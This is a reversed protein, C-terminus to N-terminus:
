IISAARAQPGSARDGPVRDPLTEGELWLPEVVHETPIEVFGRDGRGVLEALLRAMRRWKEIRRMDGGSIVRGHFRFTSETLVAAIAPGRRRKPLYPELARAQSAHFCVIADPRLDSVQRFTERDVTLGKRVPAEIYSLTAGRPLRRERYSLVAGLRADNDWTSGSEFLLVVVRRYGRDFVRSLVFFLYAYPDHRTLHVPLADDGRSNKVVSFRHWAFTRVLAEPLPNGYNLLGIAVMGRNWLTWSLRRGDTERNYRVLEADIGEARMTEQFEVRDLAMGVPLLFAARFREAGTRSRQRALQAAAANGVYGLREAERRVRERTAEAVGARGRLAQSATFTSVGAAEAVEM